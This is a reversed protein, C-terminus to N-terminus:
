TRAKTVLTQIIRESKGNKHQTYPPAPEFSIGSVPLIGRFLCNDFEGRWNDCRLRAIPWEPYAKNMRALFEQLVSTMELSDKSKVFYVWVRRSYNDIYVMFYKQGSFSPVAIPGCVDSHVVDFPRSVPPVPSRIINQHQKGLICPQCTPFLISDKSKLLLAGLALRLSSQGIHGFRQHWLALDPKTSNSATAFIKEGRTTHSTVEAKIRYLGNTLVALEIQQSTSGSSRSTFYCIPNAFTVSYESSLQGILLLSISFSPVYIASIDISYIPTLNIGIKGSEYAFIESGDGLIISIPKALRAIQYFKVM